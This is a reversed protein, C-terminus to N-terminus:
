GSRHVSSYISCLREIVSSTSHYRIVWERNRIGIKEWSDKNELLYVISDSIEGVTNGKLVPPTEPYSHEDKDLGTILPKACSMAELSILDMMYPSFKSLIIDAANYYHEMEWPSLRPLYYVRKLELEQILRMIRIYEPSYMDDKILYLSIPYKDQLDRYAYLLKENHKIKQFRVPNFLRVTKGDGLTVNTDKPSFRETDIPNPLFLYKDKPIGLQQMNRLLDPTSVIIKKTQRMARRLLKGFLSDSSAVERIDSGHFHSVMLKGLFM